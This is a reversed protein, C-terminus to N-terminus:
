SKIYESPAKFDGDGERVQINGPIVSNELNLPYEYVHRVTPHESGVLIYEREDSGRLWRSLMKNSVAVTKDIISLNSIVEPYLSEGSITFEYLVDESDFQVVIHFNSSTVGLVKGTLLIWEDDKNLRACVKNGNKRAKLFKNDEMNFFENNM